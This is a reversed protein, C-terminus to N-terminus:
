KCSNIYLNEKKKITLPPTLDGPEDIIIKRVTAKLVHIHLKGKLRRAETVWDARDTSGIKDCFVKVARSWSRGTRTRIRMDTNVCIIAM